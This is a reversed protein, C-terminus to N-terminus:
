IQEAKILNTSGSIGVPIGATIVAIDGQEVLGAEMAREKALAFLADTSAVPQGQLAVVGWSLALQRQTRLDVAVAVIPCGPRFESIMRATVGRQTVTLIAKAGLDMATTCCAHSIASSINGTAKRPRRFRGWYDINREAEEATKAMMKLAEVPYMGSATEGSLMIADTGDYVANAVDSVEARTPRPNRSMSDLMQTATIVPKGAALCQSIMRKQIGPVEWAPLEVGMDGRAVMIGDAEKLIENLNHIGQRNEIKAIILLDQGGMENLAQRMQRVDDGSRVFSAAVFDFEEEVAFRLDSLDKESLFPMPVESNPLNVGKSDKVTGSNKVTCHIETGEVRDVTMAILGDDLCIEAGARVAEYLPPYTTSFREATGLVPEACIIVHAGEKLEASGGAFAGTRIEPGKTDLMFPVPAKLEQCIKRLRHLTQRHSDHTGHSFNFRAVNMGSLVLQRM